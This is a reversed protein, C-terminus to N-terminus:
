GGANNRLAREHSSCAYAVFSGLALLLAGTLRVVVPGQHTWSDIVAQSQEVAVSGALATVTGLIVIIGGLVRLGNPSRSASAALLLILGFIIRVTAVVYFSLPGSSVFQRAIWVLAVPFVTGLIGVASICLGFSFALAKAAGHM